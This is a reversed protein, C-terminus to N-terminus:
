PYLLENTSTPKQTFTGAVMFRFHKSSFGECWAVDRFGYLVTHLWLICSAMSLMTDELQVVSVRCRFKGPAYGSDRGM